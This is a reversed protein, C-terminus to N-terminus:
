TMVVVTSVSQTEDTGMNEGDVSDAAPLNRFLLRASLIQHLAKLIARLMDKVWAKVWKYRGKDNM